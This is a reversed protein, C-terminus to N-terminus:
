FNLGFYSAVYAEFDAKPFMGGEGTPLYSIYFTTDDVDGLVYKGIVITFSVPPDLNKLTPDTM